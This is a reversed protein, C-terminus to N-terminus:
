DEKDEQCTVYRQTLRARCALCLLLTVHLAIGGMIKLLARRNCLKLLLIRVFFSLKEGLLFVEDAQDCDIGCLTELSLELQLLCDSSVSKLKFWLFPEITAGAREPIDSSGSTHVGVLVLRLLLADCSDEAMGPSEVLGRAIASNPVTFTQEQWGMKSWSSKLIYFLDQHLVSIDVALILTLLQQGASSSM